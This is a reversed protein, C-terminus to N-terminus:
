LGTNRQTVTTQINLDTTISRLTIKGYVNIQVMRPPATDNMLSFNLGNINVDSSTLDQCSGASCKQVRKNTEDLRYSRTTGTYDKYSIEKGVSLISYNTGERLDVVINEMAFNVNDVILQIEKAKRYTDLVILFTSTIVFAVIIFISVSVMMEILTFGQNNKKNKKM